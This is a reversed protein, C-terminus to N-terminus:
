GMGSGGTKGSEDEACQCLGNSPDDGRIGPHHLRHYQGPVPQCCKGFKILIDDVGKVLVGAGPKKKRVRGIIKNLISESEEDPESKPIFRQVIQLPTNKGYGVSAILDEVTRFGFHEVVQAM